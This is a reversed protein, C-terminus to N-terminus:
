RLVVVQTGAPLYPEVVEVISDNSNGLIVEVERTSSDPQLVTIRFRRMQEDSQIADRPLLATEGRQPERFVAQAELGEPVCVSEPRVVVRMTQTTKDMEALTEATTAAIRQGDPLLLTCRGQALAAEEGPVYVEFVLSGTEAMSGLLTGEAVYGGTQQVVSLMVGDQAAQIPLPRRLTDGIAHQEKSEIRFLVQGKRVREGAQVCTETIYGSIPATVVPKKRYVAFAPYRQEREIRGYSPTVTERQREAQMAQRSEVQMAQGNEAASQKGGRCGSLGVGALVGGAALGIM